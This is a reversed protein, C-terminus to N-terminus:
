FLVWITHRFYWIIIDSARKKQEENTFLSCVHGCVFELRQNVVDKRWGSGYKTVDYNGSFKLQHESLLLNTVFESLVLHTM